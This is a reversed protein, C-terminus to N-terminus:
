NFELDDDTDWTSWDNARTCEPCGCWGTKGYHEAEWQDVEAQQAADWEEESWNDTEPGYLDGSM